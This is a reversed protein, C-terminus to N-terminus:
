ITYLVGLDFGSRVIDAGEIRGIRVDPVPLAAPDVAPGKLKIM